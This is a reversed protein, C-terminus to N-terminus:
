GDRYDDSPLPSVNGFVSKVILIIRETTVPKEVLEFLVGEQNAVKLEDFFEEHFATVIYVPVEQNIKRIARLVQVGNMEPMRLDLFVLDYEKHRFAELGKPGGDAATVECDEDELALIFSKRVAEEDDIVLIQKAM